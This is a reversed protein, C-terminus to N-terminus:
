HKYSDKENKRTNSPAPLSPVGPPSVFPVGQAQEGGKGLVVDHLLDTTPTETDKIEGKPYVGRSLPTSSPKLAPAPQLAPAPGGPTVPSSPGVDPRKIGRFSVRNYDIPNEWNPQTISRRRMEEGSLGDGPYRIQKQPMEPFRQQRQEEPSVIKQFNDIKKGINDQQLGLNQTQTLKDQYEIQRAKAMNLHDQAKYHSGVSAVKAAQVNIKEAELALKQQELANKKKQENLTGVVSSIENIISM